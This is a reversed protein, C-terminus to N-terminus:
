GCDGCDGCNGCVAKDVAAIDGLDLMFDLEPRGSWAEAASFCTVNLSRSLSGFIADLVILVVGGAVGFDAM